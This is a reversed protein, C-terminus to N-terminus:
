GPGQSVRGTGLHVQLSRLLEVGEVRTERVSVKSGKAGLGYVNARHRAHTAAVSPGNGVRPCPTEHNAAARACRAKQMKQHDAHTTSHLLHFTGHHGTKGRAHRRCASRLGARSADRRVETQEAFATGRLLHGVAHSARRAPRALLGCRIITKATSARSPM